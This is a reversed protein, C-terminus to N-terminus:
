AFPTTSPKVFAPYRREDEVVLVYVYSGSQWWAIAKGGTNSQPWQPAAGPLNSRTMKAVYLMAKGAKGHALEYAVVPVTTFRDIWQWRAPPVLIAGPVPFDRPAQAIPEWDGSLQGAWQDALVDFELESDPQLWYGVAIVLAAAL